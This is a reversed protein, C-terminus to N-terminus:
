NKNQVWSHDSDEYLYKKMNKKKKKPLFICNKWTYLLAIHMIFTEIIEWVFVFKDFEM